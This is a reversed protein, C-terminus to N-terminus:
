DPIVSLCTTIEFEGAGHYTRVQSYATLDNFHWWESALPTLKAETCYRQLALAPANAAMTATMEASRWATTSFIAVPKTYTASAMSLEHIATPMAYEEYEDVRVVSYGGVSGVHAQTVKALSVDVAYGEQHNSPGTAIFWSINWPATSIGAKVEEDKQALASLNEVVAMQADCPCYGEYLVLTNGEALANQQARCVNKAMSYLVPMMFEEYGLRPNDAKGHYLAKGTINPIDTGSSIFASSYANTANYVISPVVDPLNILCYRHEVWGAAGDALVQWWDGSESLVVFATGPELVALAGAMPDPTPTPEPTPGPSTEPTPETSFEPAPDSAPKTSPEPAPDPAPEGGPEPAPEAAPERAPEGDPEPTPEETPEATVPVDAEGGEPGAPSPAPEEMGEGAADEQPATEETRPETVGPTEEPAPSADGPPEQEPEASPQVSPEEIPTVSPEPPAYIVALKGEDGQPLEEWLPLKMTAYGTAGSVPLELGEAPTFSINLRHGPDWLDPEPIPEPLPEALLEPVDPENIERSQAPTEAPDPAPSTEAPEGTGCGALLRTLLAALMLIYVKNRNRLKM